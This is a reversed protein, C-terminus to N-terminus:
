QSEKRSVHDGDYYEMAQEIYQLERNIEDVRNKQQKTKEAQMLISKLIKQYEMKKRELYNRLNLDKRKLLFRGFRLEVESYERVIDETREFKMLFYFKQDEELMDEDICQYGLRPLFSRVEEIDSQPQLVLYPISKTKEIEKDLISIMLKGGMGAIIACDAEDIQLADFGNSLRTEIQDDYGYEKINKKARELPGKNIDMAIANKIRAEELLTISVYGHDCGVDAVTDVEPTINVLARLRKSIDM